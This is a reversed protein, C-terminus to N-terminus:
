VSGDAYGAALMRSRPSPALATVASAPGALLHAAVLGSRGPEGSSRNVRFWGRVRGKSDGAVLTANGVLMQVSTLTAGTEPVLDTTEAILPKKSGQVDYRILTGDKWAVFLNDGVGSVFLALPKQGEVAPSMPLTVTRPQYVPKDEDLGRVQKLISFRLQGDAAYSGVVPGTSRWSVDVLEVAAPAVDVPEDLRVELTHRRFQSEAAREVVADSKIVAEGIELRRLDDGLERQPVFSNRFALTGLCITGNDFGFAMREESGPASVSTLKAGEALKRQAVLQGEHGRDLRFFDLAGEASLAWGAVGHENVALQLPPTSWPSKLEAAPAATASKFLPVVSWVLFVCVMSVAVITGIGGAVILGHAVTDAARVTWKTRRQRTRGTFTTPVSM